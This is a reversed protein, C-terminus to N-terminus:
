PTVGRCLCVFNFRLSVKIIDYLFSRIYYMTLRTTTNISEFNRSCRISLCSAQLLFKEVTVRVSGDLFISYIFVGVEM